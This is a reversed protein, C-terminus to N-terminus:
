QSIIFLYNTRKAKIYELPKNLYSLFILWFEDERHVFNEKAWSTELPSSCPRNYGKRPLFKIRLFRRSSHSSSLRLTPWPTTKTSHYILPYVHRTLRKRLYDGLLQRYFKYQPYRWTWWFTPPFTLQALSETLQPSFLSLFTGSFLSRFWLVRGGCKLRNWWTNGWCDLGGM